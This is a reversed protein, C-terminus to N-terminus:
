PKSAMTANVRRYDSYTYDLQARIRKVLAITASGNLAIRTPLWAGDAVRSQEMTIHAGKAIRLVLLGYSFSDVTEADMKVWHYDPKAIWFRPKMKALIASGSSKFKYGPKPVADIVWTDVGDIKEEGAIRFDFADPVESLPERQRDQRRRWEAIRRDRQEKPENRRQGANWQLRDAEAKQEEAGLPQDNRAILRRYPSGEVNSVEFTRITESKVKGASDFQRSLQREHYSYTRWNEANAKDLEVARRVIEQADQASIIWSALLLLGLVRV